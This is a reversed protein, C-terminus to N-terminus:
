ERSSHTHTEWMSRSPSNRATTLLPCVWRWLQLKCLRQNAGCRHLHSCERPQHRTVLPSGLSPWLWHWRTSWRGSNGNGRKRNGRLQECLKNFQAWHNAAQINWRLPKDRQVDKWRLRPFDAKDATYITSTASTTEWACSINLIFLGVHKWGRWNFTNRLFAGYARSEWKRILWEFIFQIEKKTDQLFPINQICKKLFHNKVTNTFEFPSNCAAFPFCTSFTYLCTLFSPNNKLQEVCVKSSSIAHDQKM